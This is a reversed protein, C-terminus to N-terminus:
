TSVVMEAEFFGGCCGRAKEEVAGSRALAVRRSKMECPTDTRGRKRVVLSELHGGGRCSPTPIEGLLVVSRRRKCRKGAFRGRRRESSSHRAADCSTATRRWYWLHVRSTGAHQVFLRGSIRMQLGKM